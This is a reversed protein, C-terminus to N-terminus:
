IYIRMVSDILGDCIACKKGVMGEICKPCYQTHGCPMLAHQREMDVLCVICENNNSPSITENTIVYFDSTNNYEHVIGDCKSYIVDNSEIYKVQNNFTGADDVPNYKHIIKIDKHQVLDYVVYCGIRNIIMFRDHFLPPYANQHSAHRAIIQNTYLAKDLVSNGYV